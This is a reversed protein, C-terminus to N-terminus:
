DSTRWTRPASLADIREWGRARAIRALARDPHVAVPHAVQELLMLDHISDAYATVGGLLTNEQACLWRAADLKESGLPHRTPPHWHFREGRYACETACWRQVGLAAALPEALFTPAGTLLAVRDGSRQHARLRELVPPRLRPMLQQQVFRAGLAEIQTRRLNTLYAKNKRGVHNRFERWYFGYFGLAAAIQVPGLKARLALYAVFRTESSPHPLLTGDVDMLVFGM